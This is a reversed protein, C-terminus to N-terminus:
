SSPPPTRHAKPAPRGGRHAVPTTAFAPPPDEIAAGVDIGTLELLRLVKASPSRLVLVANAPLDYRVRALARLGAVDMFSLGVLDVVLRGPRHATVQSLQESFLDCTSVDVDGIVTAIPVGDPWDVHV